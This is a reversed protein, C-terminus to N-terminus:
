DPARPADLVGAPGRAAQPEGILQFLHHGIESQRQAHEDLGRDDRAYRDNRQGEADPRVGRDEREVALEQQTRQRDDLRFPQHIELGRPRLGARVTAGPLAAAVFHEAVRHETVQLPLLGHERVDHRVTAEAGAHGM